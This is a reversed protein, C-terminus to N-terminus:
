AQDTAKRWGRGGKSPALIGSVIPVRYFPRFKRKGLFEFFSVDIMDTRRRAFKGVAKADNIEGNLFVPLADLM